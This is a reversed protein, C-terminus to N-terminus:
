PLALPEEGAAPPCAPASCSHQFRCLGVIWTQAAREWVWVWVTQRQAYALSMSWVCCLTGISSLIWHQRRFSCPQTEVTDASHEQWNCPDPLSASLSPMAELPAVGGAAGLAFARAFAQAGWQGPFRCITGNFLPERPPIGSRAVAWCGPSHAHGTDSHPGPSGSGGAAQGM